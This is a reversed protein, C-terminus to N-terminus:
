TERLPAPLERAPILEVDSTKPDFVIVVEGEDLQRLVAARKEELPVDRHGYDTGERLVFADVLAVLTERALRAPPVVIGDSASM